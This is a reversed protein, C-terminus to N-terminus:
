FLNSHKLGSGIEASEKDEDINQVSETKLRQKTSNWPLKKNNPTEEKNPETSMESLFSQRFISTASNPSKFNQGTNLPGKGGVENKKWILYGFMKLLHANKEGIIERILHSDENMLRKPDEHKDILERVKEYKAEGLQTKLFQMTFYPRNPSGPSLPDFVQDSFSTKKKLKTTNQYNINQYPNNFLDSRVTSSIPKEGKSDPQSNPGESADPINISLKQIKRSSETLNNAKQEFSIEQMDKRQSFKAIDKEVNAVPSSETYSVQKYVRKKEHDQSDKINSISQSKLASKESAVKDPQSPTVTLRKKGEILALIHNAKRKTTTPSQRSSNPSISSM